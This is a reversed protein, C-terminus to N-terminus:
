GYVAFHFRTFGNIGAQASMVVAQSCGEEVEALSALPCTTHLTDLGAGRNKGMRREEGCSSQRGM